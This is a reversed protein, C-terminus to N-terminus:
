SCLLKTIRLPLILRFIGALLCSSPFNLMLLCCFVWSSFRKPDALFTSDKNIRGKWLSRKSLSLNGLIGCTRFFWAITGAWDRSQVQLLILEWETLLLSYNGFLLNLIGRGMGSKWCSRLYIFLYDPIHDQLYFWTLEM